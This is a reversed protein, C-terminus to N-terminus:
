VMHCTWVWHGEGCEGFKEPPDNKANYADSAKTVYYKEDEFDAFWFYEAKTKKRYIHGGKDIM